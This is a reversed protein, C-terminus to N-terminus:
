GLSGSTVIVENAAVSGGDRSLVEAIFERLPPYGESDGYSLVPEPEEWADAHAQRLRAIPIQETAATKMTHSRAKANRRAAIM